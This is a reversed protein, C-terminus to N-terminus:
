ETLSLLGLWFIDFSVRPDRPSGGAVDLALGDTFAVSAEAMMAAPVRPALELQAFLREVTRAASRRRHDAVTRSAERVQGERVLALAGVSALEGRRLEDDLWGWLANLGSMADLRDVAARERGILGAGLHEVIEALLSARDRYHYHLLAKSVGAELAIAAMSAGAVGDRTICRAGADVIRARADTATSGVSPHESM